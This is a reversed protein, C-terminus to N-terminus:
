PLQRSSTQSPGSPTDEVEGDIVIARQWTAEDIPGQIRSRECSLWGHMYGMVTSFPVTVFYIISIIVAVHIGFSWGELIAVISGVVSSLLLSKKIHPDKWPRPSACSSKM